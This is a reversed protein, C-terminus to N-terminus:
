PPASPRSGWPSWCPRRCPWPRASGPWPNWFAASGWANLLAQIRRDRSISALLDQIRDMAKTEVAVSYTLLAAFIVWLIPMLAFAAGDLVAKAALLPTLGWGAVALVVAVALGAVCAVPTSLKLIGLGVLLWLVPLMAAFPALASHAFPVALEAM